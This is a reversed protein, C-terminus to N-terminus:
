GLIIVLEFKAPQQVPLNDPDDGRLLRDVYSAARGGADVYDIGYSM